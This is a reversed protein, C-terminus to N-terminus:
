MCVKLNIGAISFTPRLFPNDLKKFPNGSLLMSLACSCEQQQKSTPIYPAVPLQRAKRKQPPGGAGDGPDEEKMVEEELQAPGTYRWDHQKIVPILQLPQHPPQLAPVEPCL